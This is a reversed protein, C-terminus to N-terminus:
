SLPIKVQFSCVPPSTVDATVTCALGLNTLAGRLIGCAMAAHVSPQQWVPTRNEAGTATVPPLNKLWPLNHEQIVYGGRRNTQLRDATKRFLFMWLDKCIFKLCERQDWVRSSSLSLREVTRVGISFGNEELMAIAAERDGGCKIVAYRVM